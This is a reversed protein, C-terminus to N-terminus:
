AKATPQPPQQSAPKRQHRQPTKLEAVSATTGLDAKLHRRASKFIEWAQVKLANKAAAADRFTQWIDRTDLVLADLKKQLPQLQKLAEPAYAAV